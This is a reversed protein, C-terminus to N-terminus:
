NSIFNGHTAHTAMPNGHTVMLKGNTAHLQWSNGYAAVLQWIFNGHTPTPNGHTAM